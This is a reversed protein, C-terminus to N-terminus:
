RDPVREPWLLKGDARRYAAWFGGLCAGLSGVILAWGVQGTAAQVVFGIAAGLLAGLVVGAYVSLLYRM